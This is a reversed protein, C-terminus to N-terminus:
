HEPSRDSTAAKSPAGTTSQGDGNDRCGLTTATSEDLLSTGESREKGAAAAKATRWKGLEFVKTKLLEDDCQSKRARNVKGRFRGSACSWCGGSPVESEDRRRRGKAEEREKKWNGKGITRDNCNDRGRWRDKRRTQEEKRKGTEKM